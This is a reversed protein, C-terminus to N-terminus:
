GIKINVSLLSAPRPAKSEECPVAAGPFIWVPIHATCNQPNEPCTVPTISSASRAEDTGEYLLTLPALEMPNLSLSHFHLFLRSFRNKPSTLSNEPVTQFVVEQNLLYLWCVLLLNFKCFSFLKKM